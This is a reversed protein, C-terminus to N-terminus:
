LEERANDGGGQENVVGAGLEGGEANQKAKTAKEAQETTMRQM